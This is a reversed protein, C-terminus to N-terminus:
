SGIFFVLIGQTLDLVGYFYWIFRTLCLIFGYFMKLLGDIVVPDLLVFKLAYLFLIEIKQKLKCGDSCQWGYYRGMVVEVMMTCYLEHSKDVMAEIDSRTVIDPLDRGCDCLYYYYHGFM